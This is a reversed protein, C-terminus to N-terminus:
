TATNLATAASSRKRKFPASPSATAAKRASRGLTVDASGHTQSSGFQASPVSGETASVSPLSLWKAHYASRAGSPPVSTLFCMTMPSDM